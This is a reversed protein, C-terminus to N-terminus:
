ISLLKSLGMHSKTAPSIRNRHEGEGERVKTRANLIAIRGSLDPLGVYLSTDFREPRLVAPDVMDPRNTAAMVYVDKRQNFGNMEVLLTNVINM